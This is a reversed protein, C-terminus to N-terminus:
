IQFEQITSFVKHLKYLMLSEEAGPYRTKKTHYYESRFKFTYYIFLYYYYGNMDPM